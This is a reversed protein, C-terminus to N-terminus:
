FDVDQDSNLAVFEPSKIYLECECCQVYNCCLESSLVNKITIDEVYIEEGSQCVFVCLKLVCLNRM